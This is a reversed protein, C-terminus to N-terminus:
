NGTSGSALALLLVGVFGAITLLSFTIGLIAFIKKRNRELLGAIGLGIGVSNICLAGFVIGLYGLNESGSAYAQGFVILPLCVFTGAVLSIIFSVIGVRSHKQDEPFPPNDQRSDVVPYNQAM